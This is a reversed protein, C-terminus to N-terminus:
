FRIIRGNGSVHASVNPNGHYYISGTGEITADLQDRAHTKIYGSGSTKANVSHSLMTSVDIQGSGISKLKSSSTVGQNVSIDGSGTTYAEFYNSTVSALSISGSGNVRTYISPAQLGNLAYISGSTNTVFSTILPASIRIRIDDSTRYDNGSKFKIVLKNGSVFTELIDLVNQQGTVQISRATDNTYYVNGYLSLDIETFTGVVTRSETVLPGSGTVEKKCSIFGITVVSVLLAITFKKM